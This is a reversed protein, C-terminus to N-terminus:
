KFRGNQITYLRLLDSHGDSEMDNFLGKDKERKSAYSRGRQNHHHRYSRPNQHKYDLGGICQVLSDLSLNEDTPVEDNRFLRENCRMDCGDILLQIAIRAINRADDIGSHLQGEFSMDLSNLMTGIGSLKLKYYSSFSKRINIWETGWEPYTIECLKCQTYLFRAM